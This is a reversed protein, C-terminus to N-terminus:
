VLEVLPSLVTIQTSALLARPVIVIVCSYDKRRAQRRGKGLNQGIRQIKVNCAKRFLCSIGGSCVSSSHHGISDSNVGRPAPGKNGENDETFNKEKGRDEKGQRGPYLSFADNRLPKKCLILMEM